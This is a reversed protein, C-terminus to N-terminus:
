RKLTGTLKMFPRGDATIEDVFDLQKPSPWRFTITERLARKDPATGSWRLVLAGDEFGGIHDHVDGANSVTYMHAANGAADWGFLDAELMTGLGPVGRASLQCGVATKGAVATCAVSTKLDAQDAGMALHLTGTWTGTLSRTLRPGNADDAHAPPGAAIAVLALLSSVLSTTRM